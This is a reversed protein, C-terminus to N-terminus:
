AYAWFICVVAGGLMGWLRIGSACRMTSLVRDARCHVEGEDCKTECQEKPKHDDQKQRSLCFLSATM